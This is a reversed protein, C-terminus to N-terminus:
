LSVVQNLHSPYSRCVTSRSLCFQAIESEKTAFFISTDYRCWGLRLVPSPDLSPKSRTVGIWIGILGKGLRGEM